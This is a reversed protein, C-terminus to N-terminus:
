VWSIPIGRQKRSLIIRVCIIVYKWLITCVCAPVCQVFDVFPTRRLISNELRTSLLRGDAINNSFIGHSWLWSSLCKQQEFPKTLLIPLIYDSAVSLFYLIRIYQYIYKRMLRHRLVRTRGEKSHVFTKRIRVAPSTGLSAISLTIERFLIM